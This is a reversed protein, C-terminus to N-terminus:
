SYRAAVDELTSAIRDLAEAIRCTPCNWCDDDLNGLPPAFLDAYHIAHCTPCQVEYRTM